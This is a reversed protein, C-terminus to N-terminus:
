QLRKKLLSALRSARLIQTEFSGTTMKVFVTKGNNFTVKTFGGSKEYSKISNLAFWTCTTSNPSETPFFILDNTEEIIIPVKYTSGLIAKTGRLRGTYSSGYYECSNEMVNYSSTNILYEGENEIVKTINENVSIVAYTDKNIEYSDM